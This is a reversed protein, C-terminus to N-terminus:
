NDSTAIAEIAEWEVFARRGQGRNVVLCEECDTLSEARLAGTPTPSRIIVIVQKDPIDYTTEGPLSDRSDPIARFRKKFIGQWDTRNM